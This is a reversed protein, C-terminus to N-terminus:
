LGNKQLYWFSKDQSSSMGTSKGVGIWPFITLCLFYKKCYSPILSIPPFVRPPLKRLSFKGPPLKRIGEFENFISYQGLHTDVVLVDNKSIDFNAILSMWNELPSKRIGDTYNAKSITLTVYVWFRKKMLFCILYSVEKM